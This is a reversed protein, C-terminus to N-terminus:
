YLIYIKKTYTGFYITKCFHHLFAGVIFLIALVELLTILAALIYRIPIYNYEREITKTFTKVKYKRKM